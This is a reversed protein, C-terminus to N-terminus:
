GALQVGRSRPPVWACRDANWREEQQTGIGLTGDIEFAKGVKLGRETVAAVLQDRALAVECMDEGGLGERIEDAAEASIPM